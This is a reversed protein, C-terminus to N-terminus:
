AGDDPWAEWEESDCAGFDWGEPGLVATGWYHDHAAECAAAKAAEYADHESLVHQRTAYESAQIACVKFRCPKAPKAPEVWLSVLPSGKAAGGGDWEWRGCELVTGRLEAWGRESALEALDVVDEDCEADPDHDIRQCGALSQWVITGLSGPLELYERLTMEM